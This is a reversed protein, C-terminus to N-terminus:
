NAAHPQKHLEQQLRVHQDELRYGTVMSSSGTNGRGCGTAESSKKLPCERATHGYGYSRFCRVRRMDRVVGSNGAGPARQKM